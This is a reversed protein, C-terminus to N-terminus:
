WANQLIFRSHRFYFKLHFFIAFESEIYEHFYQLISSELRIWFLFTAKKVNDM